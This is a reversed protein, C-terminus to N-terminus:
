SPRLPSSSGYLVSLLFATGLSSDSKTPFSSQQTSLSVNSENEHACFKKYSPSNDVDDQLTEEGENWHEVGVWATEKSSSPETKITSTALAPENSIGARAEIGAYSESLSRYAQQKTANWFQGNEPSEGTCSIGDMPNFRKEQKEKEDFRSLFTTDITEFVSTECIQRPGECLSSACPGSAATFQPFMREKLKDEVNQELATCVFPHFPFPTKRELSTGPASTLLPRRQLTYSDASTFINEKETESCCRTVVPDAERKSFFLPPKTQKTEVATCLFSKKKSMANPSTSDTEQTRNNVADADRTGVVDPMNLYPHELKPTKLNSYCSASGSNVGGFNGGYSSNSTSHNDCSVTAGPAGEISEFNHHMPIYSSPPPPPPPPAAADVSKLLHVPHFVNLPLANSHLESDSSPITTSSTSTTRIPTHSEVNSKGPPLFEELRQQQLLCALLIRLGETMRDREKIECLKRLIDYRLAKDNDATREEPNETRGTDTRISSEILHMAAELVPPALRCLFLPYLVAVSFFIVCSSSLSPKVLLGLNSFSAPYSCARECSHPRLCKEWCFVWGEKSVESTSLVCNKGRWCM